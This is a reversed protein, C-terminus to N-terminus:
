EVPIFSGQLMQQDNIIINIKRKRLKANSFGAAGSCVVTHAGNYCVNGTLVKRANANAYTCFRFAPIQCVPYKAAIGCTLFLVRHVLGKLSRGVAYLSPQALSDIFGHLLIIVLLGYSGLRLGVFTASNVAIPGPTMEAITILNTFEDMTLWGFREVVQSRILPMAAYGGGVSFAGVQLYSLFLHWFM